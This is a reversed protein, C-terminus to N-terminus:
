LAASSIFLLVQALREIAPHLHLRSAGRRAMLV